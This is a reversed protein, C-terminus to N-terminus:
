WFASNQQRSMLGQLNATSIAALAMHQSIAMLTQPDLKTVDVNTWLQQLTKLYAVYAEMSRRQAEAWAEQTGRIYNVYAEEFHQMQGNVSMVSGPVPASPPPPVKRSVEQTSEKHPPVRVGNSDEVVVKESALMRRLLQDVEEDSLRAVREALEADTEQQSQSFSPASFEEATPTLGRAVEAMKAITPTQFLSRLPVEIRLVERVRSLIRTALLSHGGLEFFNDHIGIQKVGLVESWITALSEELADGPAVYDIELDRTDPLPLAQRDLKGNPLLPFTELLVFLSPVMTAPLKESLFTRLDKSTPPTGNRPLVYGVLRQDGPTFERLMVAAHRVAPHEELTAEIEDLEIRLGRLKVQHDARGLFEVAGDSRRRALDGTRFLRQGPEASFPDPVFSKATLDARNLYGRSLGIGGIYLEGAVGVPVLRQRADLIHIQMNALPHGIPVSDGGDRKCTWFTADITAETPGYFNILGANLRAFFREPLEAPLTEGGSFLLRLTTCNSLGPEDLLMRMLSPVVQLITIKEEAALQVLYDSETHGGHRALVLCAGTLLPLFIEWVSADFIFPTKQLVRDAETVSFVSQMWLMHNLAARHSIMVGKPVGTSGSTYIVYALSDPSVAVAKFSTNGEWSEDLRVLEVEAPLQDSLWSQTLVVRVGADRLMLKIRETPYAPDLPVYTAGAKLVGLIAAIMELSREVCIGVQEEVGVGLQQLRGAIQEARENLEGYTWQQQGAIVAVRQPTQEAQLAFLEHLCVGAYEYEVQTKNWERLQAEEYASLQPLEAVSPASPSVSGNREKIRRELLMLKEPSLAALRQALKSM